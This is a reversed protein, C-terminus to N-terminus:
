PLLVTGSCFQESTCDHSTDQAECCVEGSASCDIVAGAVKCHADDEAACQNFYLDCWGFPGCDADYYCFLKSGDVCQGPPAGDFAFCIDHVGDNNACDAQLQCEGQPPTGGQGGDPCSCGASGGVGAAAGEVVDGGDGGCGGCQCAPPPQQTAVETTCGSLLLLWLVLKRM